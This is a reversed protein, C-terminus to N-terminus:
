TKLFYSEVRSGQRVTGIPPVPNPLSQKFHKDKRLTTPLVFCLSNLYSERDKVSCSMSKVKWTGPKQKMCVCSNRSTNLPVWSVHKQPGAATVNHVVRRLRVRGM